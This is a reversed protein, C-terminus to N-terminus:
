SNVLYKEIQARAEPDHVTGTMEIESVVVDQIKGAKALEYAADLKESKSFEEPDRRPQGDPDLSKELQEIGTISKSQQPQAAMAKLLKNQEDFSKQLQNNKEALGSIASSVASKILDEQEQKAKKLAEAEAQAKKLTEVEVQAKKFEQYEEFEDKTVETGDESKKFPRVAPAKPSQKMRGRGESTQDVSTAQKNAEENEDEVGDRETTSDDYQSERRGDMDVQPVDSIQAPRGAGRAYDMQGKPAQAVAADATTQADQAIDISKEVDNDAFVDDILADIAAAKELEEANQTPETSM